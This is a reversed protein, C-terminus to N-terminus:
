VDTESKTVTHYNTGAVMSGAGLKDLKDLIANQHICNIDLESYM